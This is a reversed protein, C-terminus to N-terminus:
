TFVCYHSQGSGEARFSINCTVLGPILHLGVDSFKIGCCLKKIRTLPSGLARKVRNVLRSIRFRHEM